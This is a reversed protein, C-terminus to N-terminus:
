EAGGKAMSPSNSVKPFRKNLLKQFSASPDLLRRGCQKEELIEASKQDLADLFSEFGVRNAIKLWMRRDNERAEASKGSSFAAVAEDVAARVPDFDDGWKAERWAKFYTGRNAIHRRGERVHARASAGTSQSSIPKNIFGSQSSSQSSKELKEEQEKKKYPTHPFPEEKEDKEENEAKLESNRVGSPTLNANYTARGLDAKRKLESDIENILASCQESIVVLRSRMEVLKM